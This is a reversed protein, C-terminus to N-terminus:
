PKAGGIAAAAGEEALVDDIVASRRMWEPANMLANSRRDRLDRAQPSHYDPHTYDYIWKMHEDCQFSLRRDTMM